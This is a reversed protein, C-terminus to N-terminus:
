RGRRQNAFPEIETSFPIMMILTMFGGFFYMLGMMLGENEDRAFDGFDMSLSFLSGGYGMVFFSAIVLMFYRSVGDPCLKIVYHIMWFLSAMGVAGILELLFSGEIFWFAFLGAGVGMWPHYNYDSHTKTGHRVTLFAGLALFLALFLHATRREEPTAPDRRPPVYTETSNSRGSRNTGYSSRSSGAGSVSTSPEPDDDYQEDYYPEDYYDDPPEDYYDPEDYRDVGDYPNTNGPYSWNNEEIGDPESRYHGEVHTGDGRYYDDVWVQASAAPGLLFFAILLPIRM